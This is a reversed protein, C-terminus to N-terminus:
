APVPLPAPCSLPVAHVVAIVPSLLFRVAALVPPTSLSLVPRAVVFAGDMQAFIRNLATRRAEPSRGNALAREYRARADAPMTAAAGAGVGRAGGSSGGAAPGFVRVPVRDPSSSRRREYIAYAHEARM